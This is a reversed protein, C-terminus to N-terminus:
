KNFTLAFVIVNTDLADKMFPFYDIQSVVNERQLLQLYTEYNSMDINSSYYLLLIFNM